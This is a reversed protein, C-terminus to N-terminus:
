LRRLVQMAELMLVVAFAQGCKLLEFFLKWHPLMYHTDLSQLADRYRNNYIIRKMRQSKWWLSADASVENLGLGILQFAIRNKLAERYEKELQDAVILEEVMRYMTQWRDFLQNNYTSTLSSANTKRYHYLPEDVYVFRQCSRYAMIQYVLDETGITKTDVFRVGAILDSRFLQMCASVMGDVRHPERTEEGLPGFLRRYFKQRFENGEWFMDTPFIHEIASRGDLERAYSCMACDADHEQAQRLLRACMTTDVWDDSDVFMTYTGSAVALGANRAGSLGANAQHIVCVCAYAHTYSDLLRASDDASGDDVCVVQIDQHTQNVLSDLCRELFSATNYVPVIIRIRPMREEVGNMGSLERSFASPFM